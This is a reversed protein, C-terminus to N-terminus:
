NGKLAAIEAKATDLEAKLEQIAATLTAVVMRPDIGQYEPNGNEDVEDKTGQVADPIVEQLEHAIFGQGTRGDDKWTYTCPKLAAVKELAGVMPQINEKLRYDSTGNYSTTTGTNSINGAATGANFFRIVQGDNSRGFFAAQTNTGNCEIQGSGVKFGSTNSQAPTTSTTGVLLNGSGASCVLVNNGQRNLELAKSNFSQIEARTGDTNIAFDDTTGASGKLVFRYNQSNTTQGLLLNGSADLRMRETNGSGGNTSFTMYATSTSSARAVEIAANATSGDFYRTWGLTQDNGTTGFNGMELIGSRTTAKGKLTLIANDANAGGINPSSTGIGVNQSTDITVATTATGGATTTQLALVGDSAATTKLGASGSSVGNDSTILSPM